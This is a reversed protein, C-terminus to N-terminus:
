PFCQARMIMGPICPPPVTCSILTCILRVFADVRSYQLLGPRQPAPSVGEGQCHAVVHEVCIHLFRDTLEDGQM